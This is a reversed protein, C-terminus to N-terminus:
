FLSSRARRHRFDLPCENTLVRSDRQAGRVFAQEAFRAVDGRDLSSPWKVVVKFPLLYQTM